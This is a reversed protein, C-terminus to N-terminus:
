NETKMGKLNSHGPFFIRENKDKCDPYKTFERLLAFIDKVIVDTSVINHFLFENKCGDETINQVGKNFQSINWEIIRKM